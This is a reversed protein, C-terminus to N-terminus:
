EGGNRRSLSVSTYPNVIVPCGTKRTEGWPGGGKVSGKHSYGKGKGAGDSHVAGGRHVGRWDIRNNGLPSGV